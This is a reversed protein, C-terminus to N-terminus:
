SNLFERLAAGFNHSREAGGGLKMLAYREDDDLGDWQSQELRVGETRANEVLKAPPTAPPDAARRVEESLTKIESGCRHRITEEIFIRVADCEEASEVPLHCIALREGRGLAQWQELSIKIGAKDLKRRAAMPVCSLSQHIEDEFKFRRMM